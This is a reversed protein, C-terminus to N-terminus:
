QHNTIRLQVAPYGPHGSRNETEYMLLLRISKLLIGRNLLRVSSEIEWNLQAFHYESCYGIWTSIQTASAQPPSSGSLTGTPMKIM